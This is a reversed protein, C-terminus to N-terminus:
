GPGHNSKQVAINMMTIRFVKWDTSTLKKRRVPLGDYGPLLGQCPFRWVQGSTGSRRSSECILDIDRESVLRCKKGCRSSSHSPLTRRIACHESATSFSTTRSRCEDYFVPMFAASVEFKLEQEAVLVERTKGAIKTTALKTVLMTVQASSVSRLDCLGAAVRCAISSKVPNAFVSVPGGIKRCFADFSWM